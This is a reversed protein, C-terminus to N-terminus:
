RSIAEDERESVWRRSARDYRIFWNVDWGTFVGKGMAGNKRTLFSTGSSRSPDSETRDWSKFSKRRSGGDSSIWSASGTRNYMLAPRVCREVLILVSVRAARSHSSSTALSLAIEQGPPHNLVTFHKKNISPQDVVSLERPHVLLLEDNPAVPFDCPRCNSTKARNRFAPSQSSRGDTCYSM